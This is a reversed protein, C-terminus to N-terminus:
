VTKRGENQKLTHTLASPSGPPLPQDPPDGWSRAGTCGAPRSVGHFCTQLPGGGASPPIPQREHGHPSAPTQPTPPLLLPLLAPTQPQSQSPDTWAASHPAKVQEPGREQSWGQWSTGQPGAEALLSQPKQTRPKYSFARHRGAVQM